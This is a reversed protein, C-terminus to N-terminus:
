RNTRCGMRQAVLRKLHAALVDVSEITPPEDRERRIIGSVINRADISTLFREKEIIEKAAENVRLWIRDLQTM